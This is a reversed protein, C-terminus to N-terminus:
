RALQFVAGDGDTQPFVKILSGSHPRLVPKEMWTGIQKAIDLSKTWQSFDADPMAQRNMPTDITTPLIGIITMGTNLAGDNDQRIQRALKRRSKTTVSNSTLEGVTQIFHHTSAKSLGYGLMGPTPGLAATAGIAVFLGGDDNERDNYGDSLFYNSAFGAALLPYLNKSTM